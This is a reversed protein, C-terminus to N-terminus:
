AAEQQQQAITECHFGAPLIVDSLTAPDDMTHLLLLGRHAKLSEALNWSVEVAVGMRVLATALRLSPLGPFGVGDSLPGYISLESHYMGISSSLLFGYSPELWDVLTPKIIYPKTGFSEVPGLAVVSVAGALGLQDELRDLDGIDLSATEGYAVLTNRFVSLQKSGALTWAVEQRRGSTEPAILALWINKAVSVPRCIAYLNALNYLSVVDTRKEKQVVHEVLELAFKADTGFQLCSEAFVLELSPQPVPLKSANSLVQWFAIRAAVRSYVNKVLFQDTKQYSDNLFGLMSQVQMEHPLALVKRVTKGFFSAFTEEAEFQAMTMVAPRRQETSPDFFYDSAGDYANEVVYVGSDLVQKTKYGQAPMRTASSIFM